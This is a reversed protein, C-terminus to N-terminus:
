SEMVIMEINSFLYQILFDSRSTESLKKKNSHIISVYLLNIHVYDTELGNIMEQWQSMDKLSEDGEYWWSYYQFHM